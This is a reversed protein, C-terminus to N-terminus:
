RDVEDRLARRFICLATTAGLMSGVVVYSNGPVWLSFLVAFAGSLCATLLYIRGRLQFVLLCLFMAILAYDIGLAGPPVLQGACAGAVGSAVWALNTALNVGLARHRDWGGARFRALNLAFSEDTIGHSFAALFRRGAGALHISLSSSMLAHRLNVVLTTSVIAASSAGLGLMSVAIFQSSGAFVVLSMLGAEWPRLGAQRALVGFALGIPVYGLCIPWAARIADRIAAARSPRQDIM